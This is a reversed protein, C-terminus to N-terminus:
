TWVVILYHCHQKEGGQYCTVLLYKPDGPPKTKEFFQNWHTEVCSTKKTTEDELRPHKWEDAIMDLTIDIPLTAAVKM